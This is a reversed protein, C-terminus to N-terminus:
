ALPADYESYHMAISQGRGTFASGLEDNNSKGSEGPAEGIYFAQDHHRRRLGCSDVFNTIGAAAAAELVFTCRMQGEFLVDRPTRHNAAIKAM